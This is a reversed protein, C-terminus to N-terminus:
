LNREGEGRRLEREEASWCSSIHVELTGIQVLWPMLFIDLYSLGWSEHMRFWLPLHSHTQM